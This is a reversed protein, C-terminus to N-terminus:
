RLVLPNCPSGVGGEIPLAPACIFSTYRRDAACAEALLELNFIEGVTLGLNPIVLQHWPQYIHTIENPRVEAGWTDTAIAAVEVKKFWPATDLAFGPADGGAYDGWAGARLCRGMQGTRVLLFDGPRMEVDQAAIAADLDEPHIACGPELADVGMVRPLDVLVARGVLKDKVRVISNRLAGMAGVLKCDYGNWMAGKYFVHGLGDWHTAGHVPMFILDDAYTSRIEAQLGAAADTGTATMTHVPNFRRGGTQPGSRGVDISLSFATGECIEDRAARITKQTVHNLTGLEDDPGWRGWNRCALALEDHDPAIVSM